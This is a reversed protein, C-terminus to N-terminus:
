ASRGRALRNSFRSVQAHCLALALADTADLPADLRDLGLLRRVMEGVQEKTATGHGTVSKKVEAPTYEGVPLDRRGLTLLFAGRVHALTLASRVNRQHFLSEVAV